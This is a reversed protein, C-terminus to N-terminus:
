HALEKLILDVGNRFETLSQDCCLQLKLGHPVVHNDM